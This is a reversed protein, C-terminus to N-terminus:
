KRRLTPAPRNSTQNRIREARSRVEGSDAFNPALLLYTNYTEAAKVLNGAPQYIQGLEM